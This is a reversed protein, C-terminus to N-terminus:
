LEIRQVEKAVTGMWHSHCIGHIFKSWLWMEHDGNGVEEAMCREDKCFYKVQKEKYIAVNKPFNNHAWGINRRYMIVKFLYVLSFNHM